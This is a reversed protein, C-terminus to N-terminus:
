AFLYNIILSNRSRSAPANYIPRRSPCVTALPGSAFTAAPRDRPCGFGAYM